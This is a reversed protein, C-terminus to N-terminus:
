ADRSVDQHDQIVHASCPPEETSPFLYRAVWRNWHGECLPIDDSRMVMRDGTEDAQCMRCTEDEPM